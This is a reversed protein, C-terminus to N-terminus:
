VFLHDFNSWKESIKLKKEELFLSGVQIENKARSGDPPNPGIFEGENKDGDALNDESICM